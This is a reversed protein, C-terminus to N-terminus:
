ARMGSATLGKFLARPRIRSLVVSVVLSAVVLGDAEAFKPAVENVADDFVCQGKKACTGCAICGRIAKNGIQVTETEIGQAAFTTEMEKLAIDTNGAKRPSGNIILVKM